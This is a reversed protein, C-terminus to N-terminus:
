REGQRGSTCLVSASGRVGGRDTLRDIEEVLEAALNPQIRKRQRIRERAEWLRFLNIRTTITCGGDAHGVVRRSSAVVLPYPSDAGGSGRAQGGKDRPEGRRLRDQETEGNGVRRRM